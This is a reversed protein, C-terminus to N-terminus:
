RININRRTQDVRGGSHNPILNVLGPKVVKANAGQISLLSNDYLKKLITARQTAYNHKGSVVTYEESGPNQMMGLITDFTRQDVPLSYRDDAKRRDRKMARVYASEADVQMWVLLSAAKCKRALDRLARRQGVRLANIDYVVSMGATLFEEAMYDMLHAVIENEQRDYRPENFLEFRIREGQIHAAQIDECLQRALFTKGSGPYGYMLILTPQNLVLKSM